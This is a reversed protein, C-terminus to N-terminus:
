SEPPLFVVKSDIGIQKFAQWIKAVGERGGEKGRGGGAAAVHASKGVVASARAGTM